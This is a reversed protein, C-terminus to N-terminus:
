GAPEIRMGTRAARQLGWGYLAELVPALSLGEETLRYEVGPPREDNETRAVLGKAELERLRQVLVKESIGPTRRRLAGYRLPGQKLHALLVVAWKGGIVDLTLEVPCHYHRNTTDM